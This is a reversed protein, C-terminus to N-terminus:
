CANGSPRWTTWSAMWRSPVRRSRGHPVRSISVPSRRHRRAGLGQLGRRDLGQLAHDGRPAAGGGLRGTCVGAPSRATRCPALRAPARSRGPPRFRGPGVPQLRCVGAGVTRCGRCRPRAAHGIRCRWSHTGPPGARFAPRAVAAPHRRGADCYRCRGSLGPGGGAGTAGRGGACRRRSPRSPPVPVDIRGAGRSASARIRDQGRQRARGQGAGRGAAAAGAALQRGAGARRAAIRHGSAAQGAAAARRGRACPRSGGAAAGLGIARSRLGTGGTARSVPGAGARGRCGPGSCGARPSM